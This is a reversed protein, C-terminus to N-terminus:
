MHSEWLFLVLVSQTALLYLLMESLIVIGDGGFATSNRGHGYENETKQYISVNIKVGVRLVWDLLVFM